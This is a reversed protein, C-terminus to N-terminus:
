QQYPHWLLCNKLSCTALGDAPLSAPPSHVTLHDPPPKIKVKPRGCLRNGGASLKEKSSKKRKRVPPDNLYQSTFQTWFISIVIHFLGCHILGQWGESLSANLMTCVIPESPYFYITNARRLGYVLQYPVFHCNQLSVVTRYIGSSGSDSERVICWTVHLFALLSQTPPPLKPPRAKLVCKLIWCFNNSVIAFNM